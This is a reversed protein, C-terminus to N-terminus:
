HSRRASLAGVDPQAVVSRLVTWEDEGTLRSRDRVYNGVIDRAVTYGLTYAGYQDLFQLLAEPSSIQAETQLESAAVGFSVRRDAYAALIPAAASSLRDILRHVTEYRRAQAPDLGALPFLVERDFRVRDEFPFALEVGFNAAGERLVSAPSRLLVIEDEVPLGAPGASLRMLLFQAHHGPYAEHCAIDIASGVLVIADPNIQLLSFDHGRYRHWAAPVSTTWEVKLREDAPLRWHALTRRRCEQLAREFVAQRREAPVVFESLFDELRVSLAGSGPLAASLAALSKATVAPDAAPVAMGYVRAAEQEFSWKGRHQIVQLLATFSRVQGLLRAGRETPALDQLRSLQQLLMEAQSSLAALSRPPAGARPRLSAPGFYSDVEDAHGKIAGLELALSVFGEAAQELSIETAAAARPPSTVMVAVLLLPALARAASPVSRAHARAASGSM